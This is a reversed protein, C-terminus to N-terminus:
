SLLSFDMVSVGRLGLRPRHCADNISQLAKEELAGM